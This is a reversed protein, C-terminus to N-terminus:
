NEVSWMGCSRELPLYLLHAESFAESAGSEVQFLASAHVCTIEQFCPEPAPMEQANKMFKNLNIRLIVKVPTFKSSSGEWCMYIQAIIKLRM